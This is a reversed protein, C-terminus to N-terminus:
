GISEGYLLNFTQECTADRAERVRELSRGLGGIIEREHQILPHDRALPQRSEDVSNALMAVGRM